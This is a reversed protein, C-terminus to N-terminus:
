PRDLDRVNNRERKFYIDFYLIRYAFVGFECAIKSCWTELQLEVSRQEFEVVQILRLPGLNLFAAPLEVSAVSPKALCHADLAFRRGDYDNRVPTEDIRHRSM